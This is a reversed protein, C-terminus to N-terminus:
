NCPTENIENNSDLELKKWNEQVNPTGENQQEMEYLSVGLNQDQIFQLFTKEYQTPSGDAGNAGEEYYKLLKEGYNKWKIKTGTGKPHINKLNQLKTIDEIKIAYTYSHNNIEVVLVSVFLNNGSPNSSPLANENYYEAISLLSYIDHHSFMPIHFGDNPHTHITGFMYPYSPFYMRNPESPHPTYNAYPGYSQNNTTNIFSYGSEHNPSIESSMNIIATRIRKDQSDMYPHPDYIPNQTLKNLEDCPTNTIVEDIEIAIPTTVVGGGGNGGGGGPNGGSGNGNGSYGGGNGNGSYGGNGEGSGSYGNGYSGSGGGGGEDECFTWIEEGGGGEPNECTCSYSVLKFCNGDQVLMFKSSLAAGFVTDEVVTKTITTNSLDVYVGNQIDQKQQATVEYRLLTLQYYGEKPFSLVLNEIYNTTDTTTRFVAFTYSSYSTESDEIYVSKKTDVYFNNENSYITRGTALKSKIEEKSPYSQILNSIKEDDILDNYTKNQVKYRGVIANEQELPLNEEFDCRWFIIAVLFLIFFQKLQTKM